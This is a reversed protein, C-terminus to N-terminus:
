LKNTQNETSPALPWGLLGFFLREFQRAQNDRRYKQRIEPRGPAHTHGQAKWQAHTAALFSEIDSLSSAACGAGNEHLLEAIPGEDNRVCLIPKEVGLAEFLKTTLIGQPRRDAKKQFFWRWPRYLRTQALDATPDTPTTATSPRNTLVLLVSARNLVAPIEDAAIYDYLQVPASPDNKLPTSIPLGPSLRAALDAIQRQSDPDCYFVLRTDTAWAARERLGKEVAQLLLSPDRLALSIIRGTYVINFTPTSQTKFVYLDADYGNPILSVNEPRDIARGLLAALWASVTTVASARRLLRNRKKIQTLGWLRGLGQELGGWHPLPRAIFGCDPYQEIIDRLDALWPLDYRRAIRAAVTMPFTRYTSSLVLDFPREGCLRAAMDYFVRNKRQRGVHAKLFNPFSAEHVEVGKRLFASEGRKDIKESVVTVRHGFSQLYRTLYGMRPAFIPPFFDCILLIRLHPQLTKNQLRAIYSCTEAYLRSPFGYTIRSSELGPMPPTDPCRADAHLFSTNHWLLCAEGGVAHARDLLQFLTQRAQTEDLHMYAPNFLTSEMCLLPHYTVATLRRAAPDVARVPRATGLRFGATDAFGMTFDDTLGSQALYGAHSPETFRLFHHRTYHVDVGWTKELHRKEKGIREPRGGATYSVHLGIAAGQRLLRDRLRRLARGGLRYRPKDYRARGLSKVFYIDQVVPNSTDKNLTTKLSNDLAGITTFTDYPDRANGGFWHNLTRRLGRGDRLSRLLGKASRYLFPADVDHTLYIRRLGPRWAPSPAATAQAPTDHRGGNGAAVIDDVRAKLWLGYEDVLPRHIYGARAAWSEGGPFRGHADRVTPRMWEEYRSLMFYAAAVFDAYLVLTEGQAHAYRAMRNEGFPVPLGDLLAPQASPLSRPTGYDAQFFNSPKIVLTYRPWEAEDATYGVQNLYFPDDRLLFSLTYRVIEEM